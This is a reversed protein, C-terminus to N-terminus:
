GSPGPSHDGGIEFRAGALKARQAAVEIQELRLSIAREGLDGAKGAFPTFFLRTGGGGGLLHLFRAGLGGLCALGQLTEGGVQAVPDGLPVLGALLKEGRAGLAVPEGFLQERRVGVRLRGRLAAIREFFYM